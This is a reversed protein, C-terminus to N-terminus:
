GSREFASPTADITGDGQARELRLSRFESILRLILHRVLILMMLGASYSMLTMIMQYDDASVLTRGRPAFLGWLNRLGRVEFFSKVLGAAMVGATWAVANILVQNGFFGLIGKRTPMHVKRAVRASSEFVDGIAQRSARHITDRRSSRIPTRNAASPGHGAARAAFPASKAFQMQM